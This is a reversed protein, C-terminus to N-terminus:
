HITDEALNDLIEQDLIKQMDQHAQEEEDIFSDSLFKVMVRLSNQTNDKFYMILEAESKDAFGEIKEIINSPKIDQTADFYAVTSQHAINAYFTFPHENIMTTNIAVTKTQQNLAQEVWLYDNSAFLVDDQILIFIDEYKLIDDTIPSAEMLLKKLEKKNKLGIVLGYFPEVNIDESPEGFGYDVMQKKVNYGDVLILMEGTFIKPLDNITLNYKKFNSNLSNVADQNSFENLFHIYKKLDVNVSYSFLPNETKGYNFFKSNFKSGNLFDIKKELAKSYNVNSYFVTKGNEFNVALEIKTGELDKFPKDAKKQKSKLPNIEEIYAMLSDIMVYMNIDDEKKLFSEYEPKINGEDAANLLVILRNLTKAGGNSNGSFLSNLDFPINGVLAMDDQWAVVYADKDKIFYNVGEKEKINANLEAKVMEKFLANDQVKFFAYVNPTMPGKALVIQIAEDNDIGTGEEQLFFSTLTQYTYPLVGDENVGSKDILNQPTLSTILFPTKVQGIMAAIKEQRSREKGCSTMSFILIIIIASYLVKKM